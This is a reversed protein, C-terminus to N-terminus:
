QLYGAGHLMLEEVTHAMEEASARMGEDLWKQLLGICGASVFAYFYAFKQQSVDAFYQAYSQASKEQGIQILEMLFAKNGHPGLTITCLDSNDRLCQFLETTIRAPTVQGSDSCMLPELACEIEARFEREIQTRLDYIDTYHTYFTGRNIGAQECLEKISISEIPKTKLLSTFAERILLRTVRTRHDVAGKKM